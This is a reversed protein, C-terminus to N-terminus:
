PGPPLFFLAKFIGLDLANVIGDGNLDGDADTTFFKSKLFGLDTANTLGDNNFDADCYNGFGDNDTDRQAANAVLKCNDTLDNVGDGDSDIVPEPNDFEVVLRPRLSPDAVYDRSRFSKTNGNGSIPELIWGHNARGDRVATIGATVNFNVWEPPWATETTSDADASLDIGVGTAGPGSWPVGAESSEWTVENEVWPVLLPRLEYVYDYSSYKYLSLTASTITANDPVPGGESEFIAFKLISRLGSAANSDFLRDQAGYNASAGFESLYADRTGSYGGLGDQMTVSTCYGSGCVTLDIPASTLEMGQADEAVVTLVHNGPEPAFWTASFPAAYARAVEEEDAFITLSSVNEDLSDVTIGIDEGSQYISGAAPSVVFPIKEVPEPQWDAPKYAWIQGEYEDFAGLFADLAAAYKWKGLIQTYGDPAQGPSVAIPSLIWDGNELDDPAQLRWPQSKGNWLLFYQRVPDYDIGYQLLNSFNFNGGQVLPTLIVNQNADGPNDLSWYTLTPGASRLFINRVPDYAGAGQGSFPNAIYRGLREYTDLGPANIDYITYKYLESSVALYLVDLGNETAQASTGNIWGTGAGPKWDGASGPELNDRNQWMAGGEVDSYVDPKVQSGVSGGVANPNAKEPNWVYPGTRSLDDLEFYRGTNFAAGGFTIFRDSNPLFESNDYTHAAPPANFPGDVAEYLAVDDRVRIVESPLSSREWRLTESRWRYVENGPYNAHGGGWFILDGRNSDWAMSSWALIISHPSGVSPADAPKPRQDLPTYVDEFENLNLKVWSNEPVNSLRVGIESLLDLQYDGAAAALPTLALSAAFFLTKASKM